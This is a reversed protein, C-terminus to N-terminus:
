LREEILALLRGEGAVYGVSGVPVNGRQENRGRTALRYLAARLLLQAWQERTSGLDLLSEDAGDWCVADTVTVALAWDAPRWYPPWDIVTARDGHRLVNGGLDGHVVQVPLDVPELRDSARQQLARTGAGGVPPAEEWAVRDGYAWADDRTDLFGPRPLDAVARHFAVHVTRFWDPDEALVATAGPMRTQAGWGEVVWGSGARLPRPVDVEECRWGATVECVWAHEPQEDVPKLVVDGALWSRGQGGELPHVPAAVGFAALVEAPPPESV